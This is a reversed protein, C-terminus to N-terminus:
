RTMPDFHLRRIGGANPIPKERGVRVRGKQLLGDEPRGLGRRRNYRDARCQEDFGIRVDAQIQAVAAFILDPLAGVAPVGDHTQAAHLVADPELFRGDHRAGVRDFKREIPIELDPHPGARAQPAGETAPRLAHRRM